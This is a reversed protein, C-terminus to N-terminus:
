KDEYSPYVIKEETKLRGVILAHKLTQWYDGKRRCAEALLIHIATANPEIKLAKECWQITEKVHNQEGELLAIFGMAWIHKPNLVLVKKFEAISKEREKLFYYGFALKFKHKWETPNESSLREYKETAIPAYEIPITKLMNWGKEIRGTYGFCMALEFIAEPSNPDKVFIAHKEETEKLLNPPIKYIKAFTNGTYLILIFVCIYIIKNM